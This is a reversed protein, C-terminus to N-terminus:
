PRLCETRPSAEPALSHECVSIADRTVASHRRELSIFKRFNMMLQRFRRLPIDDVFVMKRPGVLKGIEPGRQSEYVSNAFEGLRLAM